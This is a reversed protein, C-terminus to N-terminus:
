VLITPPKYIPLTRKVPKARYIPNVPIEQRTTMKHETKCEVIDPSQVIQMYEAFNSVIKWLTWLIVICVVVDITYQKALTFSLFSNTELLDRLQQITVAQKPTILITNLVKFIAETEYNELWKTINTTLPIHVITQYDNFKSTYVFMHTHTYAQPCDKSLNLLYSRQITILKPPNCNITLQTPNQTLLRFTNGALQTALTQAKQFKINCNAKVLRLNHTFLSYLCSDSKKKSMIQNTPCHYVFNIKTCSQIDSTTYHKILTGMKDVALFQAKPAEVNAIINNGLYMPTPVYQYITMKTGKLVPILTFTVIALPENKYVYTLTQAQYISAYDNYVPQYGNARIKVVLANFSHRLSTQDLTGWKLKQDILSTLAMLVKFMAKQMMKIQIQLSIQAQKEVTTKDIGDIAATSIKSKTKEYIKKLYVLIKDFNATHEPIIELMTKPNNLKAEQYVTNAAFRQVAGLGFGLAKELIVKAVNRRNRLKGYLQTQNNVLDLNRLVGHSSQKTLMKLVNQVDKYISQLKLLDNLGSINLSDPPQYDPNYIDDTISINYFAKAQDHIHDFAVIVDSFNLFNILTAYGNLQATEGITNFSITNDMNQSTEEIASAMFVQYFACVIFVLSGKMSFTTLRSIGRHNGNNMIYGRNAGHQGVKRMEHAKNELM